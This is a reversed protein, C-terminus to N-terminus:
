KNESQKELLTKIEELLYEATHKKAEEAAAAAADAAAKDRAAALTEIEAESKGSRRMAYYEKKAYGYYKPTSVEHVKNIFKVISFLILAIILFNLIASVVAGWDIYISQAMDIVGDVEVAKLMTVASELGNGAGALAWNVLPQFVNKTLATVIATFAGGVIVGVAMDIVNGRTIFAKFEKFFKKM